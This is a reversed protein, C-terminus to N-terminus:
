GDRQAFAQRKRKLGTLLTAPGLVRVHRSPASNSRRALVKWASSPM